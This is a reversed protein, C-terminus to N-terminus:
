CIIKSILDDINENHKIVILNINNTKCYNEKIIDNNSRYKLGDKGGWYEISEYHQVGNYEICTNKNPLYFDFKLQQKHKCDDFKHQSVYEINNIKLINEIKLEGKSLSCKPCGAGNLHHHPTQKFKGHKKCIINIKIKNNIIKDNEYIYRNNHIKQCRNIFNKINLPRSEIYCKNCGSGSLHSSPTQEFMGHKECKILVKTKNNIMKVFDYNYKNNHIMNSKEIFKEKTLLHCKACGIGKMHTWPLQEFVGCNPCIIKVLTRVNKYEVLEYNYKNNHIKNSKEIFIDKNLKKM